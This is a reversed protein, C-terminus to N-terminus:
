AVKALLGLHYTYLYLTHAVCRIHLHQASPQQRCGYYSLYATYSLICGGICLLGWFRQQQRPIVQLFAIGMSAPEMFHESACIQCDDACLLGSSRLSAGHLCSINSNQKHMGHTLCRLMLLIQVAVLAEGSGRTSITITFPNFLWCAVSLKVVNAPVQKASLM